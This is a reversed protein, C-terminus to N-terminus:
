GAGRATLVPDSGRSGPPATHWILEFGFAVPHAADRPDATLNFAEIGTDPFTAGLAHMFAACERYGGVGNLKIKIWAHVPGGRDRMEPVIGDVQLGVSGALATVEALHQNVQDAPQLRIRNDKLAQEAEVVGRQVRALRAKLVTAERRQHAYKAQSAERRARSELMPEVAAVWTGVALLAVCTLGMLDVWWTRKFNELWQNM